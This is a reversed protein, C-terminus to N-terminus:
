YLILHISMDQDKYENITKRLAKWDFPIQSHEAIYQLDNLMADDISFYAADSDGLLDDCWDFLYSRMNQSIPVEIGIPEMEEEDDDEYCVKDIEVICIDTRPKENDIYEKLETLSSCKSAKKM